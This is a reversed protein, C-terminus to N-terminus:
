VTEPVRLHALVLDFEDHDTIEIRMLRAFDDRSARAHTRSSEMCDRDEFTVASASLGQERDLFLSVSCFGPYDEMRPVMVSRYADLVRDVQSPDARTWTVRTCAGSPAESRRHMVAVEWDHVEPPGGFISAARERLGRVGEASARMSELDHWSSTVICRGSERDALMSLGVCGPMATVAPMVEDCVYSIGDDITVPAGNLTTSRAYM